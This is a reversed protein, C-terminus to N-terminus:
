ADYMVVDVYRKRFVACFIRWYDLRNSGMALLRLRGASVNAALSNCRLRFQSGNLNIAYPLFINCSLTIKVPRFVGCRSSIPYFFLLSEGSDRGAGYFRTARNIARQVSYRLNSAISSGIHRAQAGRGCAGNWITVALKWFTIPCIAIEQQATPL